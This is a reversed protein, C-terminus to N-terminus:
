LPDFSLDPVEKLGVIHISYQGDQRVSLRLLDQGGKKAPDFPHRLVGYGAVEPPVPPLGQTLFQGPQRCGQQVAGIILQYVAPMPKFGPSHSRHRRAHDQEQRSDDGIVSSHARLGAPAQPFLLDPLRLAQGDLRLCGERLPEPQVSDPVRQGGERYLLPVSRNDSLRHQGKM